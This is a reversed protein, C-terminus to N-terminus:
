ERNKMKERAMKKKSVKKVEVEDEARPVVQEHEALILEIHCPSSMYPNIRGHARYTRRRMSPAENVQIHEVVLSDVDLGKFEANSEANKLLQLLIEASKKPWRGQSGPAKRNKAQAKRGVGGNFKRFPIIQKKAVVDKLYRTAKRVHMGKIAMGTERTNKFHVRLNSGRAKCSKTPNEPDTAYRTM